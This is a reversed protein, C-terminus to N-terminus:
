GRGGAAKKAKAESFFYKSGVFWAKKGGVKGTRIKSKGGQVVRVNPLKRNKDRGAKGWREERPSRWTGAKKAKRKAKHRKRESEEHAKWWAASKRKPMKKGVPIYEGDDSLRGAKEMALAMAVAQKHSLGEVEYLHKIKASVRMQSKSGNKRARHM